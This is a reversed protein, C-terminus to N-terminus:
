EPQLVFDHELLWEVGNTAAGAKKYTVYLQPKAGFVSDSDVYQDDHTFLQTTLRECGDASIIFHIHAPRMPHRGAAAFIRGVPGDTPIPYSVPKFTIFSYRGQESTRLIGRLNMEPQDSDQVAYLRNPAVQWIDLTAHAIPRGNVDLVRGSVLTREGEGALAISDGNKITPSGPVYFPGLLASETAGSNGSHNIDDLLRSLGLSDSLLVFEQRKGTCTHGTATLFRIAALWEADTLEVDRAFAHLHHILSNFIQNWRADNTQAYATRVQLELAEENAATKRM